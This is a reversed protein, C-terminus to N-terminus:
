NVMRLRMKLSPGEVKMMVRFNNKGMNTVKLGKLKSRVLLSTSKLTGHRLNQFCRIGWYIMSKLKIWSSRWFSSNLNYINSQLLCRLKRYNYLPLASYHLQQGWQLYIQGKISRYFYKFFKGLHDIKFFKFYVMWFSQLLILWETLRQM